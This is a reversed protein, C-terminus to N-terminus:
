NNAYVLWNLAADFLAYSAAHGHDVHETYAVKDRKLKCIFRETLTYDVRTDATGYGIYGIERRLKRTYTDANFYIPNTDTFEDLAQMRIVPLLAIYKDFKHTTAALLAHLGGFSVGVVVNTNADGYQYEISTKIRIIRAIWDSYLVDSYDKLMTYLYQTQKAYDINIMIVDYGQNVLAYVFSSYIPTSWQEWSNGLGHFLYVRKINPTSAQMIYCTEDRDENGCQITTAPLLTSQPASGTSVSQQEQKGCASLTLLAILILYKNM